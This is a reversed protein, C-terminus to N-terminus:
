VPFQSELQLEYLLIHPCHTGLVVGGGGCHGDFHTSAILLPLQLGLQLAYLLIQPCHTGLVVGGGGGPPYRGGGSLLLLKEGWSPLLIASWGCECNELFPSPFTRLEAALTELSELFRLLLFSLSVLPPLFSILGVLLGLFLQSRYKLSPIM